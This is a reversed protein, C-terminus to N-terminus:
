FRGMCSRRHRSDETNSNQCSLKNWQERNSECSISWCELVLSLYTQAGVIGLTRRTFDFECSRSLRYTSVEHGEYKIHAICYVPLDLNCITQNHLGDASDRKMM